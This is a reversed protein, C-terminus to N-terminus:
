QRQRAERRQQRWLWPPTPNPESWLGRRSMRADDQLGQWVQCNKCYRPWVWVLGNRLLAAQLSDGDSFFIIAVTRGYRDPSKGQEQVQVERYLFGFVFGTASEGWPQRKEPADIGHLRVRVRQGGMSPEVEITDGDIATVIRGPWASAAPPLFLFLIPIILFYRM